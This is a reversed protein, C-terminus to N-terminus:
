EIGTLAKMVTYTQPDLGKQMKLAETIDYNVYEDGKMGIVRCSQGEVLLRVAEYGMYTATVRDRM